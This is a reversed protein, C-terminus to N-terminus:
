QLSPSLVRQGLGAKISISDLSESLHAQGRKLAQQRHMCADPVTMRSNKDRYFSSPQQSMFLLEGLCCPRQWSCHLFLFSHSVLIMDNRTNYSRCAITLSSLSEDPKKVVEAFCSNVRATGHQFPYKTHLGKTLALWAAGVCACSGRGLLSTRLGIRTSM